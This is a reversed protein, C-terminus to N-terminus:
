LPILGREPPAEVNGPTDLPEPNSSGPVARRCGRQEHYIRGAVRPGTVRYSGDDRDCTHQANIPYSHRSRRPPRPVNRLRGATRASRRAISAASEPNRRGALAAAVRHIVGDGIREEGYPAAEVLHGGTLRRQHPHVADGVAHDPVMPAAEGPAAPQVFAQSRDFEAGGSGCVVGHDVVDLGTADEGHQRPEAVSVGVDETQHCPLSQGDGTGSDHQPDFGVRGPLPEVPGPSVQGALVVSQLGARYEM